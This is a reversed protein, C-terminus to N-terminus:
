TIDKCNPTSQNPLQKKSPKHTCCDKTMVDALHSFEKLLINPLSVMPNTCRKQGKYFPDLFIVPCLPSSIVVHESSLLFAVHIGKAEKKM